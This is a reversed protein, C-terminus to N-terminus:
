MINCDGPALIPGDVAKGNVGDAARVFAEHMRKKMDQEVKATNLVLDGPAPWELTIFGDLTGRLQVKHDGDATADATYILCGVFKEDAKSDQTVQHVEFGLNASGEGGPYTIFTTSFPAVTVAPNRRGLSAQMATSTLGAGGGSLLEQRIVVIRRDPEDSPHYSPQLRYTNPTNNVFRALTTDAALPAGVALVAALALNNHLIKM